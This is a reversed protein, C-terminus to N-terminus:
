SAGIVLFLECVVRQAKVFCGLEVYVIECSSCAVVVEVRSYPKLRGELRFECVRCIM